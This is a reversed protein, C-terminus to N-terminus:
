RGRHFDAMSEDANYIILQEIAGMAVAHNFANMYGSLTTSILANELRLPQVLLHALYWAAADTFSPVFKTVDTVQRAYVGRATQEDTFIVDGETEFRIPYRPDFAGTEPLLYWLRLCDSPRAYSYQYDDERANVSQQELTLTTKAHRWMGAETVYDRATGYLENCWRAPNGTETISEIRGQGIKALALNAIQTASSAM